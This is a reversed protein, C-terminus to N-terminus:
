NEPSEVLAPNPPMPGAYCVGECLAWASQWALTPLSRLWALEDSEAVARLMGVKAEAQATKDSADCSANECAAQSAGALLPVVTRGSPALKVPMPVFKGGYVAADIVQKSEIDVWVYLFAQYMM